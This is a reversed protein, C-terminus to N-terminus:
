SSEIQKKILIVQLDLAAERLVQQQGKLYWRWEERQDAYLESSGVIDISKNLMDAKANYSAILQKIEEIM